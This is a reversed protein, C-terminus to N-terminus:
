DALLLSFTSALNVESLFAVLLIMFIVAVFSAEDLLNGEPTKRIIWVTVPRAVLLVFGMFGVFTLFSSISIAVSDNAGIMYAVVGVSAVINLFDAILSASMALRGLKSTLLHLESLTCTLVCYSTVSWRFNFTLIPELHRLPRPIRHRLLYGIILVLCFPFVSSGIAIAVARKGTKRIMSLETKVGVMFVFFVFSLMAITNLHEWTKTSYLLKEFAMSQGIFTPGLLMGAQM